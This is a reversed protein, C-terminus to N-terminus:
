VGFWSGCVRFELGNVAVRFELGYLAFGLSWVRFGLGL